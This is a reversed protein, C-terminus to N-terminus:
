ESRSIQSITQSTALSSGVVHSVDTEVDMRVHQTTRREARPGSRMRRELLGPDNKMLYLTILFSAGAFTLLCVWAQWYHLTWAPVFLLFVMVVVLVILKSWTRTKLTAM